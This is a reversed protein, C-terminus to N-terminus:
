LGYWEAQTRDWRHRRLSKLVDEPLPGVETALLNARVHETTRMGPIVTTVTPNSLVFRLAVEPLALQAPLDQQLADVRELTRTLNAGRFYTERFDGKIWRSQPSLSGTLSGEDFPVRAVVGIGRDRCVAFLEDEPAQDFVNYIVQVADILGSQLTRIVNTPEWQYVSIGIAEVSGEERLRSAAIQWGEDRAWADEWVHFQLLGIRDVGLNALSQDVCSLVYDSPYADAGTQARNWPWTLHRPPVKTAIFLNKSPNAAVLRGLLQESKGEGYALATDFFTCGLDIALQLAAEAEIRDTDSWDVVGWMGVGLESVRFDTRGLNRLRM